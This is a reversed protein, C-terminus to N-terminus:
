DGYLVKGEELAAKVVSGVLHGYHEVFQRDKVVIDVGCQLKSRLPRIAEYAQRSAETVDRGPQVQIFLDVDSEPTTEGRASSGFLIIREPNVAAAIRRAVERLLKQDASNDAM